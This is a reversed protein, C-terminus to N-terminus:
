SSHDQFPQNQSSCQQHLSSPQFHDQLSKNKPSFQQFASEQPLNDQFSKNKSSYDPYHHDQFSNLKIAPKLSSNNHQGKNHTQKCAHSHLPNSFTVCKKAHTISDLAKSPAKNPVKFEIIGLRMSAAYSLM